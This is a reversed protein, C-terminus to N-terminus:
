CALQYTLQCVLEKAQEQSSFGQWLSPAFIRVIWAHGREGLTFICSCCSPKSQSFQHVEGPLSDIQCTNKLQRNTDVSPGSSWLSFPMMRPGPVPHSPIHALATPSLTLRPLVGPHWTLVDVVDGGWLARRPHRSAKLFLPCWEGYVLLFETAWHWRCPWLEAGLVM